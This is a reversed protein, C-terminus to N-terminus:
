HRLKQYDIYYNLCFSISSNMPARFTQAANDFYDFDIRKDCTEVDNKWVLSFRSGPSFEWSYGLYFNFANYNIHNHNIPQTRM